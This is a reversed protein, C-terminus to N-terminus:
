LETFDYISPGEYNAFLDLNSTHKRLLFPVNNTQAAELDAVADGIMLCENSPVNFANLSDKIAKSKGIPAGFVAEFM